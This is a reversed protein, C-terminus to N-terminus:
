CTISFTDIYSTVNGNADVTIHLLGHIQENPASGQSILAENLTETFNFAQGATFNETVHFTGPIQYKLGSTEGIGSVGQFNESLSLHAGGSNDYTINVQQHYYGSIAIIEGTCSSYATGSIPVDTQVAAARAPQASLGFLGLLVVASTISTVLIRRFLLM